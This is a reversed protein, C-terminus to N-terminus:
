WGVRGWGAGVCAAAEGEGGRMRVVIGSDVVRRDRGFWARPRIARLHRNMTM